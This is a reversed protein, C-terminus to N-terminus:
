SKFFASVYTLVELNFGVLYTSYSWYSFSLFSRLLM